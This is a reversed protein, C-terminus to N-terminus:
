GKQRLLKRWMKKMTGQDDPELEPFRNGGDGAPLDADKLNNEVPSPTSSETRLDPRTLTMKLTMERTGPGDQTGPPQWHEACITPRVPSKKVDNSLRLDSPQNPEPEDKDGGGFASRDDDVDLFTGTFEQPEPNTEVEEPPQPEPSRSEKNELAPFGFRLAEDFKQPSSLFVRLKLRAEPDQYYQAAPEVSSTSSRPVDNDSPPRSTSARSLTNSSPPAHSARALSPFRRHRVASSPKRGLNVSNFSMTRRFSPRRRTPLKPMTNFNQAHYRGLTLDLDADEDLWRFSDYLSDDMAADDKDSGFYLTSAQSLPVTSQSPKSHLSPSSAQPDRRARYRRRDAADLVFRHYAQRFRLREEESFHKQQIKAPLSHFCQSDAQAALYALQLSRPKCLKRSNRPSNELSDERNGSTAVPRSRLAGLHLRGSGDAVRAVSQSHHAQDADLLKWTSGSYAKRRLAPPLSEFEDDSPVALVKM